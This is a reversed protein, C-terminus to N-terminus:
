HTVPNKAERVPGPVFEFCQRLWKSVGGVSRDKVQEFFWDRCKGVRKGFTVRQWIRVPDMKWRVPQGDPVGDGLTRVLLDNDNNLVDLGVGSPSAVCGASPHAPLGNSTFSLAKYGAHGGLAAPHRTLDELGAPPSSGCVQCDDM